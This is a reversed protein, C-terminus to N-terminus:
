QAKEKAAIAKPSDDEYCTISRQNNSISYIRGDVLKCCEKVWSKGDIFMSMIFYQNKTKSLIIEEEDTGKQLVDKVEVPAVFENSRKILLVDGTSIQGYGTIPLINM